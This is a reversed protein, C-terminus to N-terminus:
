HIDVLILAEYASLLTAATPTEPLPIHPPWTGANEVQCRLLKYLNMQAHPNIANYNNDNNNPLDPVGTVHQMTVPTLRRQTLWYALYANMVPLLFLLNHRPLPPPYLEQLHAPLANYLISYARTTMAYTCFLFLPATM